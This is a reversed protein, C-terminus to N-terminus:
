EDSESRRDLEDLIRVLHIYYRAILGTELHAQFVSKGSEIRHMVQMLDRSPLYATLRRFVELQTTPDLHSIWAYDRHQM